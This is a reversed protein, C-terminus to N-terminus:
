IHIINQQKIGLKLAKTIENLDNEFIIVEDADVCLLHLANEYKSSVNVSCEGFFLQNFYDVIGHHQLTLMARARNANTVLVTQQKDSAHRLARVLDENLRTESLFNEYFKDKLQIIAQYEENSLQPYFKVLTRKDFRTRENFPVSKKQGVVLEIAQHYALYNAYDTDVLTGDMDFFLINNLGFSSLHNISM